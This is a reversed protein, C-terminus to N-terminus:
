NECSYKKRKADIYEHYRVRSEIKNMDYHLRDRIFNRATIWKVNYKKSIYLISKGENLLEVIEQKHPTLKVNQCKYGKYHGIIMGQAKRAQLAEKTRESIRQRETQAIIAYVACLMTFEKTGSVQNEKILHIICGKQELLDLTVLTDTITRGLRSLEPTILVDGTVMRAVLKGLDRKDRPVKGSIKEEVWEDVKLGRYEAYKEISFKQGDFGQKDTSVRIYAYVM